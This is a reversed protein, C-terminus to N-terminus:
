MLGEQEVQFVTRVSPRFGLSRALSGDVQLYWPNLLPESESLLSQNSRINLTILSKLWSHRADTTSLERDPM